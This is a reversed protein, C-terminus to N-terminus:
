FIKLSQVHNKSVCQFPVTFQSENKFGVWTSLESHAVLLFSFAFFLVPFASAAVATPIQQRPDPAKQEVLSKVCEIIQNGWLVCFWAMFGSKTEMETSCTSPIVQLVCAIGLVAKAM